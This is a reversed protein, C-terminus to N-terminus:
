LQVALEDVLDSFYWDSRTRDAPDGAIWRAHHAAFQAPTMQRLVDYRLSDRALSKATETDLKAAVLEDYRERESPTLM